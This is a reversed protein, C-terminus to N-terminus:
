PKAARGSVIETALHRSANAFNAEALGVSEDLWTALSGYPSVYEYVRRKGKQAQAPEAAGVTVAVKVVCRIREDRTSAMVFERLEIAVLVTPKDGSTNWHGQARDVIAAELEGRFDHSQLARTVRDRLRGAKDEPLAATTGVALGAVVGVEAGALVGLPVCLPALPGCALGWVGGALAGAGAGALAEPSEGGVSENRVEITGPWDPAQSVVIRVSEDPAVAIDQSIACGTLVALSVLAAGACRLPACLRVLPAALLSVALTMIRVLTHGSESDDPNM